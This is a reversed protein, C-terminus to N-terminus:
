DPSLAPSTADAVRRRAGTALDVEYLREPDGFVSVFAHRRDPALEIGETGKGAVFGPVRRVLRGNRHLVSLRRSSRRAVLVDGAAVLPRKAALSTSRPHGGASTDSCAGLALGAVGM